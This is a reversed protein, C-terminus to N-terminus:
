IMERKQRRPDKREEQQIKLRMRTRTEADEKELNEIQRRVGELTPRRTTLVFSDIFAKSGETQFKYGSRSLLEMIAWCKKARSPPPEFYVGM